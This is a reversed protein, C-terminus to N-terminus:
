AWWEIGKLKEDVATDYIEWPMSWAQSSLLDINLNMTHETILKYLLNALLRNNAPSLHNARVDFTKLKSLLECTNYEKGEMRTRELKSLNDLNTLIPFDIESSQYVRDDSEMCLNVLYINEQKCRQNVEKIISSSIFALLPEEFVDGFFRNINQQFDDATINKGEYGVNWERGHYEKPLHPWRMLSTHCFIVVDFKTYNNLFKKYSWWHSTGSAAFTEIEINEKNGLYHNWSAEQWQNPDAYSDGFVGIKM